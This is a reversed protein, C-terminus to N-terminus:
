YMGILTASVYKSTAENWVKGFLYVCGTNKDVYTYADFWYFKIEKNENDKSKLITTTTWENDADNKMEIDDDSKASVLGDTTQHLSLVSKKPSEIEGVSKSLSKEEEEHKRKIGSSSKDCVDTSIADM